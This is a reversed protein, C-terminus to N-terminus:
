RWCSRHQHNLSPHKHPLNQRDVRQGRSRDDYQPINMLKWLQFHPFTPFDLLPFPKIKSQRAM